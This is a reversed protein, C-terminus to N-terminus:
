GMDGSGNVWVGGVGGSRLWWRLCVRAPMIVHACMPDTVHVPVAGLPRLAGYRDFAEASSPTRPQVPELRRDVRHQAGIQGRRALLPVRHPPDQLTQNLLVVRTLQRVRRHAVVDSAPPRLDRGLGATRPLLREDQLTVTRDLFGLDVEPLKPDPQGTDRRLHEHERQPHREGALGHMVHERRLALREDLAM